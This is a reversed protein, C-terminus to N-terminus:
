IFDKKDYINTDSHKLIELLTSLKIKKIKSRNQLKEYSSLISLYESKTLNPSIYNAINYNPFM